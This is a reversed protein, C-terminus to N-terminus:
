PHSRNRMQSIFHDSEREGHRAKGKPVLTFPLSLCGALVPIWEPDAHAGHEYTTWPVVHAVLWSLVVESEGNALNDPHHRLFWQLIPTCMYKPIPGPHRTARGAGTGCGYACQVVGKAFCCPAESTTVDRSRPNVLDWPGLPCM